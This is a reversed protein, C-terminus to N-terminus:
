RGFGYGDRPRDASDPVPVESPYGFNAGYLPACGAVAVLMLLAPVRRALPARHTLAM